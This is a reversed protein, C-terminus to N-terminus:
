IVEEYLIKNVPVKFINSALAEDDMTVVRLQIEVYGDKLNLTDEQTLSLSLVKGNKELEELPKNIVIELNQKITVWATKLLSTDIPLEFELTPTTGRIM